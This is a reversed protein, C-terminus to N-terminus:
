APSTRGPLGPFRPAHKAQSGNWRELESRAEALGDPGALEYYRRPRGPHQSDSAAASRLIGRQELRILIPYATGSSLQCQRLLQLGYFRAAPDAAFAQLVRATEDSIRRRGRQPM